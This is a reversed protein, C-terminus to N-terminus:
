LVGAAACWAAGAAIALGYPLELGGAMLGLVGPAAVLRLGRRALALRLLALLGGALTTALCFELAGWPALFTSLAGLAKVDGAGVAGLFFFVAMLGFVLGGALLSRGLGAMGGSALALALGTLAALATLANPIRRSALDYSMMVLALWLFVLGPKFGTSGVLLPLVFVAPLLGWHPGGLGALVNSQGRIHM